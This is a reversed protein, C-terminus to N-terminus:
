HFITKNLSYLHNGLLVTAQKSPAAVNSSQGHTSWSQGWALYWGHLFPSCCKFSLEGTNHSCGRAENYLPLRGIRLPCCWASSRGTSTLGPARDWHDHTASPCSIDPLGALLSGAWSTRPMSFHPFRAQVHCKGPIIQQSQLSPSFVAPEPLVLELIWHLLCSAGGSHTLSVPYRHVWWGLPNLACQGVIHCM